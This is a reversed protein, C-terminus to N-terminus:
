ETGQDAMGQDQGQTEGTAAADYEPMSELRDATLDSRVQGDAGMSLRRLEIAVQKEGIGLFEGVEVVALQGMGTEDEVVQVVTGIEEGDQSVITQGVVDAETLQSAGAMSSQQDMTTAPDQPSTQMTGPETAQMDDQAAYTSDTAAEPEAEAYPEPEERADCGAIAAAAALGVSALIMRYANTNM